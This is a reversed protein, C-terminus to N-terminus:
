PSPPTPTTLVLPENFPYASPNKLRFDFSTSIELAIPSGSFQAPTMRWKKVTEVASDDIAMHASSSEIRVDSISGDKSVLFRVVVSGTQNLRQSIVPYKPLSQSAPLLHPATALGHVNTGDSNTFIAQGSIMGAGFQGELTWGEPSRYVGHGNEVGNSFQGSYGSGDPWVIKGAGNFKLDFFQGEYRLGSPGSEIGSVLNGNIFWGEAVIDDASSTEGAGKLRGNEFGGRESPGFGYGSRFIGNGSALHDKCQGSWDGTDAYHRRSLGPRPFYIWCDANQAYAWGLEPGVTEPPHVEKSGVIAVPGDSIQANAQVGSVACAGLAVFISIWRLMM